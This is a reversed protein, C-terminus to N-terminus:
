LCKVATIIDDFRPTYDGGNMNNSLNLYKDDSEKTTDMKMKNSLNLYKSKYEYYQHEYNTSKKNLM